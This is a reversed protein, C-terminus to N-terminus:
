PVQSTRGDDDEPPHLATAVRLRGSMLPTLLLDRMRALSRSHLKAALLQDVIPANIAAFACCIADPPVVVHQRAITDPRIAPYAAGDALAALDQIFKPSTTTCWLLERYHQVRPTLVAFGTSGTLGGEPVLAYSGNAPRVMGIITDGIELIRRARSPAKSWEYVEVKDITGFKTNALDVYRVTDPHSKASWTDRNIHALTNLAKMEWGEPLGTAPDLRDPFLDWIEPALYPPAGAMRARTPGFDVFWDTFLARAMGELVAAMRRNAAIRDDLAGLVGAIARQEPLSDPLKIRASTLTSASANPQASKESVVGALFDFFHHSRLWYSLFRSSVEPKTQLRVLYSAFISSPPNYIYKSAGTSAGTRAIVIDGTKLAFKEQQKQDANAFPVTEWNIQDGVIDTIRLFKPGIPQSSASATWGYDISSCLNAITTERWETM